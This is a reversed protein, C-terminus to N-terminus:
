KIQLNQKQVLTCGKIKQGTKLLKKIETKDPEFTIKKKMYKKPIQDEDLIEVKESALFSFAVRSTEMKKENNSLLSNSVYEKLRDIERQKSDMRKKLNDRETKIAAAEAELNKIYAGINGLKEVRAMQMQDLEDLIDQSVEGTEEDVETFMRYLIDEIGRDIEYLSAM